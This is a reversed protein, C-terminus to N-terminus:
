SHTRSCPSRPSALGGLATDNQVVGGQDPGWFSIVDPKTGKPLYYLVAALMDGSWAQHLWSKGEPLTQYDTIDVKVNSISTLERSTTAPRPSSRRTTPTSIPFGAWACRTASCRCRSRTASTM